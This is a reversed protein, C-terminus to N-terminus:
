FSQLACCMILARRKQGFLIGYDRAEVQRV